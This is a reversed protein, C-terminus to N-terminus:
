LTELEPCRQKVWDRWAMEHGELDEGRDLSMVNLAHRVVAQWAVQDIKRITEFPIPVAGNALVRCFTEYVTKAGATVSVDLQDEFMEAVRKSAEYWAMQGTEDLDHWAPFPARNAQKGDMAHRYANFMSAGVQAISYGEVEENM